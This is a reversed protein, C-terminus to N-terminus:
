LRGAGSHARPAAPYTEGCGPPSLLATRARARTPTHALTRAHSRDRVRMRAPARACAHPRRALAHTRMASCSVSHRAAAPDCTQKRAPQQQSGKRTANNTQKLTTGCPGVDRAVGLVCSCSRFCLLLHCGPFGPSGPPMPAHPQFTTRQQSPLHQLRGRGTAAQMNFAARPVSSTAHQVSSTARQMSCHQVNCTAYQINCAAHQMSFTPQTARQMNCRGAVLLCIRPTADHVAAKNRNRSTENRLTVIQM